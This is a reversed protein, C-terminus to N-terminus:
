AALAKALSKEFKGLAEEFNTYWFANLPTESGLLGVLFVHLAVLEQKTLVDTLFAVKDPEFGELVDYVFPAQVLDSQMKSVSILINIATITLAKPGMNLAFNVFDALSRANQEPWVLTSFTRCKKTPPSSNCVEEPSIPGLRLLIENLSNM